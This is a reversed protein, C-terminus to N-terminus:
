NQKISCKSCRDHNVEVDVPFWHKVGEIEHVGFYGLYINDRCRNTYEVLDYHKVKPFNTRLDKSNVGYKRWREREFQNPWNLMMERVVFRIDAVSKMDHPVYRELSSQNAMPKEVGLRQKFVM